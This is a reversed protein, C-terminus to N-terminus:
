VQTDAMKITAGTVEKVYEQVGEKSGQRQEPTLSWSCSKGAIIKDMPANELLNFLTKSMARARRRQARSMWLWHWCCKAIAWKQKIWKKQNM